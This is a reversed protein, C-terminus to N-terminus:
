LRGLVIEAGWNYAGCNYALEEAHVTVWPTVGGSVAKLEEASPCKRGKMWKESRGRDPAVSEVIMVAPEEALGRPGVGRGGGTWDDSLRREPRRGFCRGVESM